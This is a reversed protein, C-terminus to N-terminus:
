ENDIGAIIRAPDSPVDLEELLLVRGPTDGYQGIM